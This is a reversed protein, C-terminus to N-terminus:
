VFDSLCNDCNNLILTRKLLFRFAKKSDDFKSVFENAIALINAVALAGYTEFTAHRFNEKM